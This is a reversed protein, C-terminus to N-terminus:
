AARREGRLRSERQQRRKRRQAQTADNLLVGFMANM